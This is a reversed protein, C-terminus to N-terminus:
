HISSMDPKGSARRWPTGGLGALQSGPPPTKSEPRDSFVREAIRDLEAPPLGPRHRGPQPSPKGLGQSLGDPAVACSMRGAENAFIEDTEDPVIVDALALKLAAMKIKECIWTLVRAM